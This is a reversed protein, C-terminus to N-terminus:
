LYRNKKDIECIIEILDENDEIIEEMNELITILDIDDFEDETEIIYSSPKNRSKIELIIQFIAPYILSITVYKIGSLLATVEEFV